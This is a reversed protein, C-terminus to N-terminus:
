IRSGCSPCFKYGKMVKTGCNTCFSYDREAKVANGSGSDPKDTEFNRDGIMKDDDELTMDASPVFDSDSPIFLRRISRDYTCLLGIEGDPFVVYFMERNTNPAELDAIQAIYAMEESGYTDETEDGYWSDCVKSAEFVAETLTRYGEM